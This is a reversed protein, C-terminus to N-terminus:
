NAKVMEMTVGYEVLRANEVMNNGNISFIVQRDSGDNIFFKGASEPV